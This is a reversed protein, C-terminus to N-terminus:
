NVYDGGFLWRELRIRIAPLEQGVVILFPTGPYKPDIRNIDYIFGTQHHKPLTSLQYDICGFLMPSVREGPSPPLPRPSPPPPSVFRAEMEARSLGIGVGWSRIPDDPYLTLTFGYPDSKACLTKQRDIPEQFPNMTKMESQSPNYKLALMGARIAVNTAVSHGVNKLDFRLSLQLAGDKNFSIPSDVVPQVKVWARDTAELQKQMIEAQTQVEHFSNDMTDKQQKATYAYYAAAGFALM